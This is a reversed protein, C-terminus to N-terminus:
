KISLYTGQEFHAFTLPMGAALADKIAKNDVKPPQPIYFAEPVQDPEDIVLKHPAKRVGLNFLETKISKKGTSEMLAKLDDKIVDASKACRKQIKELREREAKIAEERAELERIIKCAEEARIEIEGELGELTDKLLQDDLDPDGALDLLAQYDSSLEYLMPTM